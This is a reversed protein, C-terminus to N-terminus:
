FYAEILENTIAIIISPKTSKSFGVLCSITITFWKAKYFTKVGLM